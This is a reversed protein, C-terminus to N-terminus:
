LSVVKGAALLVEAISYMNSIEGVAVQEKVGFFDVCTGCVVLDVGQQVLHQLDELVPSDQLTLLVGRNFFILTDPLPSIEQLAHLFARVLISGLEENGRGMQDSPIVVVLPGAPPSSTGAAPAPQPGGATGKGRTLHLYFGDEREEVTVEFGQKMAMKSVNNRSVENDVICIVEESQVLAKKTLIVPQPCPQGRTDVIQAM